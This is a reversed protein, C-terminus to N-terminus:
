GTVLSSSFHREDMLKGGRGSSGGEDFEGGDRMQPLLSSDPRGQHM